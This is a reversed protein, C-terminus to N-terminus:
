GPSLAKKLVPIWDDLFRRTPSEPGEDDPRSVSRIVYLKYLSPSRAFELRPERSARWQAGDHSWAWWLSLHELRPEARTATTHWFSQPQGAATLDAAKISGNMQFGAGRYCVDPTHAGIAGPRGAVILVMVSAGTTQHTYRRSLFGVVDAIELQRADLPVEESTWDGHTAPIKQLRQAAEIVVASKGWRDSRLGHAIGAGGLILGATLIPLVQQM